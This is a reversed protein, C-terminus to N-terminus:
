LTTLHTVMEFTEIKEGKQNIKSGESIIRFGCNKYCTIARTNTKRVDCRVSDFDLMLRAQKIAVPITERGIGKGLKDKKGILIGMTAVTDQGKGKELWVTGVEVNDAIIVYWAYLHTNKIDSGNCEHPFFRSMYQSADIENRWREYTQLDSTTFERLSINM